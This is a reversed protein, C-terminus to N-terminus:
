GEERTRLVITSPCGFRASIAAIFEAERRGLWQCFGGCAACTLRHLHPGASSGVVAISSSCHPCPKPVQVRQGVIPSVASSPTSSSPPSSPKIFDFAYQMPTTGRRLRGKPSSGGLSSAKHRSRRSKTTSITTRQRRDSPSRRCRSPPSSPRRSPAVTMVDVCGAFSTACASPQPSTDLLM